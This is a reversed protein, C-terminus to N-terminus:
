AAIRAPHIGSVANMGKHLTQILLSKFRRDMKDFVKDLAAIIWQKLVAETLVLHAGLMVINAGKENGCARALDGAPISYTHIDRRSPLNKVLTSNLLLIGGPSVSKEFKVLSPANMVLAYDADNIVRPSGIPKDSIVVCCYATGGRMEPGYSPIWSVHRNGIMGAYALIQGMTM